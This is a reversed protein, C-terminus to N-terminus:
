TEGGANSSVGTFMRSSLRPEEDAHKVSSEVTAIFGEARSM